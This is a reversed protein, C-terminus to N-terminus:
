FFLVLTFMIISVILSTSSSDDSTPQNVTSSIISVTTTPSVTTTSPSSTPTTPNTTQSGSTSPDTNNTPPIYIEPDIAFTDCPKNVDDSIPCLFCIRRHATGDRLGIPDSVPRCVVKLTGKSEVCDVKDRARFEIRGNARDVVVGTATSTL